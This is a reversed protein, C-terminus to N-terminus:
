RDMRRQCRKVPCAGDVPRSGPLYLVNPERLCLTHLDRLAAWMEDTTLPSTSAMKEALRGREPFLKYISQALETKSNDEAVEKGRTLIKWDRREQVWTEQYLRLADRKLKKSYTTLRRQATSFAQNDGEAGRLTQVEAKLECLYLDQKLEEELHAPLEDPLGDEHFKELSQFYEIHRQDSEEDRFAAQGDVSSCNAM